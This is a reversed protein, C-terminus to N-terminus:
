QSGATVECCKLTPSRIVAWYDIELTSATPLGTKLSYPTARFFQNRRFEYVVMHEDGAPVARPKEPDETRHTLLIRKSYLDHVQLTKPKHHNNAVLRGNQWLHVRIHRSLDLPYDYDLKDESLIRWCHVDKIERQRGEDQVLLLLLRSITSVRMMISCRLREILMIAEIFLGVPEIEEQRTSAVFFSARRILSLRICHLTIFANRLTASYVKSRIM